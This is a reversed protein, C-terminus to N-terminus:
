RTGEKSIEVTMGESLFRLNSVAVMEKDCLGATIGIMGNPMLEGRTIKRQTAQQTAPDIVWVYDGETPRNCLAAQPVVVQSTTRPAVEFFLKGSIGALLKSDTNPLLATLLYSLNNQTTSKSIEVVKATYIKEPDADFHLSVQKINQIAIDQNVFAEIRLQDIDVLSIVPQGARVEQHKELFVQEVYGNFPAILQTDSLENTATEFNTKATTYEARAKEYTSASLNEKEYLAKIRVFEAKAQDYLAEAREKRIRFDRADISAIVEGRKYHTGAYLDFREIPGGVRFSLESLRFPKAIFAFEKRSLTQQTTATAVKVIVDPKKTGNAAPGCATCSACIGLILISKVFPTM